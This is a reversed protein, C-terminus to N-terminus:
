PNEGSAFLQFLPRNLYLNTKGASHKELLGAECLKELHTRATQYHKGTDAALYEIKTYPHKFLNELLDKSYINPLNARIGRKYQDMLKGIDGILAITERATQLVGELM